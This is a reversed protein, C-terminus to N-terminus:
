KARLGKEVLRRIAEPRTPRPAAQAKIWTDLAALYVPPMRVQIQVAGVKPRGRKKKGADTTTRGMLIHYWFIAQLLM